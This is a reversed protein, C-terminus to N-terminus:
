GTRSDDLFLRIVKIANERYHDTIVFSDERIYYKFDSKGAETIKKVNIISSQNVRAFYPPLENEIESLTKRLLFGKTPIESQLLLNNNGKGDKANASRIYLIDDWKIVTEKEVPDEPRKQQRNLQSSFYDLPNIGKVRYSRGLAKRKNRLGIQPMILQVTLWLQEKDFPKQAKMIFGNAAISKAREVNVPNNYASLFIVPTFYYEKIYAGLEIGDKEGKIKIDLIALDPTNHELIQLAEDFSDVAKNRDALLVEFGKEDFFDVLEDFLVFENEVILVKLKAATM